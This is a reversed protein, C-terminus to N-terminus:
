FSFSFLRNFSILVPLSPCVSISVWKNYYELMDPATALEGGRVRGDAFTQRWAADLQSANHFIRVRAKDYAQVVRTPSAIRVENFLDFMTGSFGDTWTRWGGNVYTLKVAPAKLQGTSRDVSTGVGRPLKANTFNFLSRSRQKITNGFCRMGEIGVFPCLADEAEKSLQFRSTKSSSLYADHVVFLFFLVFRYFLRMM